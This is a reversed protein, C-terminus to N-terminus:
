EDGGKKKGKRSDIMAFCRMLIEDFTERPYKRYEEMKLKTELKLSISTHTKTRTIEDSM